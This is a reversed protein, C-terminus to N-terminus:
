VLFIKTYWKALLWYPSLVGILKNIVECIATLKSSSNIIQSYCYFDARTLIESFQFEYIIVIQGNLWQKEKHAVCQARLKKKFFIHM